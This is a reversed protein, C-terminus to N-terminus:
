SCLLDSVSEDVVAAAADYAATLASWSKGGVLSATRPLIPLPKADGSSDGDSAPHTSGAADGGDGEKGRGVADNDITSSSQHELTAAGACITAVGAGLAGKLKRPVPLERRVKAVQHAFSKKTDASTPGSAITATEHEMQPAQEKQGDKEDGEQDSEQGSGLGETQRAREEKNKGNKKEIGDVTYALKGKFQAYAAVTGTLLQTGNKNAQNGVHKALTSVDNALTTAAELGPVKSLLNGQQNPPQQREPSKNPVDWYAREPLVVLSM